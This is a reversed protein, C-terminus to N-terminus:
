TKPKVPQKAGKQVPLLQQAASAQVRPTAVVDVGLGALRYIGDLQTFMIEFHIHVPQSPFDGILVLEGNQNIEPPKTLNPTMLISPSLDIKRARLNAFAATLAAQDFRERFIPTGLDRLVSYNGTANAQALAVVTGKILITLFASDFASQGQQGQADPAVPKANQADAAQVGLILCFALLIRSVIFM